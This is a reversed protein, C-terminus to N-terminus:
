CRRSVVARKEAQWKLAEGLTPERSMKMANRFENANEFANDESSFVVLAASSYDPDRRMTAEVADLKELVAPVVLGVPADERAPADDDLISFFDDLDDSM